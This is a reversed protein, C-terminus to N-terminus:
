EAIYIKGNEVVTEYTKIPIECPFSCPEGTKVNFSGGHLPCEVIEGEFYGDTLVAVNHTCINSTVYFQSGVNFVALSQLGEADVRKMKGEPVCQAECLYVKNGM